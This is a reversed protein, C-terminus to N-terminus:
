EKSLWCKYLIIRSINQFCVGYEKGLMELTYKGTKYKRRIQCVQRWTLKKYNSKEGKGIPHFKSHEKPSVVMLNEIRNDTKIGNIHHIQEGKKLRRGLHKEIVVRHEYRFGCRENNDLLRIYGSPALYRGGKWLYSKEGIFFTNRCKNSCFKNKRGRIKNWKVVSPYVNYKGKCNDCILEIM